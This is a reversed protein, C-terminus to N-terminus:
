ATLKTGLNSARVMVKLALMEWVSKAKGIANPSKKDIDRAQRIIQVLEPGYEDFFEFPDTRFAISGDNKKELLMRLSALIPLWTWRERDLDYNEGDLDPRFTYTVMKKDAKYGFKGPNTEDGRNWFKGYKNKIYDSLELITPLLHALEKYRAEDLLFAKLCAEKGSYAIVPQKATDNLPYNIIDFATLLALLERVDIGEQNQVYAIKDAYNKGSLIRKIFDFKKELEALSKQDVQVSNNRAGAFSAISVEEGIGTFIELSVYRTKEEDLRETEKQIVAYTHGGDVIGYDESEAESGFNITIEGTQDDHSVQKASMFIGRNLVHFNEDEHFTSAIDKAVRTTLKVERPNTERPLNAPLNRTDCIAIFRKISSEQNKPHLPIRRFSVVPFEFSVSRKM